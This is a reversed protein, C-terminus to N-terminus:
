KELEWARITYFIARDDTEMDTAKPLVAYGEAVYKKAPRLHGQSLEIAALNAYSRAAGAVNNAQQYARLAKLRLHLVVDFQNTKSYVDALNSLLDGLESPM